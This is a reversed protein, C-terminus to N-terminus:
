VKNYGQCYNLDVHQLVDLRVCTGQNYTYQPGHVESAMYTTVGRCMAFIDPGYSQLDRIPRKILIFTIETAPQGQGKLNRSEEALRPLSDFSPMERRNMVSIYCAGEPMVKSAIFGTDYNWITKWSGQTSKEEIIAVHWERNMTLIQYGGAVTIQKTVDTNQFYEALAPTLLLGLLVTTVIYAIKVDFTLGSIDRLLAQISKHPIFTPRHAPESSLGCEGDGAQPSAPSLCFRRPFTFLQYKELCGLNSFHDNYTM